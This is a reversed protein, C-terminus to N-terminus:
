QNSWPVEFAQMRNMKLEPDYPKTTSRKRITGWHGDSRLSRDHIFPLYYIAGNTWVRRGCREPYAQFYSLRTKSEHNRQSDFAMNLKGKGGRWAIKRGIQSSDSINSM